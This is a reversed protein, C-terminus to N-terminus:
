SVFRGKVDKSATEKNRGRTKEKRKRYFWTTTKPRNNNGTM